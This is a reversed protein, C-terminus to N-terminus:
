LAVPGSFNQYRPLINQIEAEPVGFWVLLSALTQEHALTPIIRSRREDIMQLSQESMDPALDGESGVLHGTAAAGVVLQNGGWAHDTGSNNPALTRGFDSQTFLTVKDAMGLADIAEQFHWLSLSLERLLMSHRAHQDDHTDFGPMSVAFVQRKLGQRKGIEAM